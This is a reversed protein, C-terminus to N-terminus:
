AAGGADPEEQGALKLATASYGTRITNIFGWSALAKEIKQATTKVDGDPLMSPNPSLDVCIGGSPKETITVSVKTEGAAPAPSLAANLFKVADRKANADDSELFKLAVKAAIRVRSAEAEAREARQAAAEAELGRRALRLLTPLANRADEILDIDHNTWEKAPEATNMNHGARLHGCTVSRVVSWPVPTARKELAELEDLMRLDDTM